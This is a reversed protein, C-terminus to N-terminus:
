PLTPTKPWCGARESISGGRGKRGYRHYVPVKVKTLDLAAVEEAADLLFQQIREQRGSSDFEVHRHHTSLTILRSSTNSPPLSNRTHTQIFLFVIEVM